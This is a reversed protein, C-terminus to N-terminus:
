WGTPAVPNVTRSPAGGPGAPDPNGFRPLAGDARAHELEMRVEERSKPGQQSVSPTWAEPQVTQAAQTTAAEPHPAQTVVPTAAQIATQSVAQPATPPAAEPMAPRLLAADAAAATVPPTSAEVAPDRSTAPSVQPASSRRAHHTRDGHAWSRTAFRNSVESKQQNAEDVVPAPTESKQERADLERQLARVRVDDKNLTQEASLLLVKASALDNRKLTARVADLVQNVAADARANAQPSPLIQGSTETGSPPTRELAASTAADHREYGSQYAPLPEDAPRLVFAASAIVGILLSALVAIKPNSIPKAFM